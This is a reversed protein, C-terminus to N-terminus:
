FSYGLGFSLSTGMTASIIAAANLTIGIIDIGLGASFYQPITKESGYHYGARLAVIDFFKYQAGIGAMIGGNFMYDFEATASFGKVTYSAGAKAYAPLNYKAGNITGIKINPGLNKVGVAVIFGKNSYEGMLDFGLSSIKAEESFGFSLNRVVVGFSWKNDVSYALSLAVDNHAPKYSGTVKAQSNIIDYSPEMYYRGSLGISLNKFRYFAGLGAATMNMSNPAWMQYTAAVAFKKVSLSMAAPNVEASFADANYAFTAGGLAAEVPSTPLNVFNFSQASMMTCGLAIIFMSLLRKM